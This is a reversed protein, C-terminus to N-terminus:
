RQDGASGDGLAEFRGFTITEGAPQALMPRHRHRGAWGKGLQERRMRTISAPCAEQQSLDIRGTRDEPDLITHRDQFATPDM